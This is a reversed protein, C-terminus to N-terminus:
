LYWHKVDRLRQIKADRGTVYNAHFVMTHKLMWPTHDVVWGMTFETMPFETLKVGPCTRIDTVGLDRFLIRQCEQDNENPYRDEYMQLSNLFSNTSPTNRLTMNGVCTWQNYAPGLTPAMDRQYVIDYERYKEHYTDRPETFFVVDADVFHIFGFEALAERIIHIKARDIPIFKKSNYDQFETDCRVTALRIEIRGESHQKIDDYLKQYLCYFVFRHNHLEQKVNALLNLVFDKYGYNASSIVVPLM